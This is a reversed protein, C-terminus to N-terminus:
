EYTGAAPFVVYVVAERLGRVLPYTGLFHIWFKRPKFCVLCSLVFCSVGGLVVIM